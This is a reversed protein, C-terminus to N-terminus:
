SYHVISQLVGSVIKEALLVLAVSREMCNRIFQTTVCVNLGPEISRM